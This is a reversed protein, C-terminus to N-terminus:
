QRRVDLDRFIRPGKDARLPAMRGGEGGKRGVLFVGRAAPKEAPSQGAHRIAFALMPLLLQRGEVVAIQAQALALRATGRLAIDSYPEIVPAPPKGKGLDPHGLFAEIAQDQRAGAMILAVDITPARAAGAGRNAIMLDYDILLESETLTARTARAEVHLEPLIRTSILGSTAPQAPAPAPAPAPEPLPAAVREAISPGEFALEERKRRSFWWYGAAGAALLAAIWWWTVFASEPGMTADSETGALGPQGSMPADLLDDDLVPPELPAPAVQSGDSSVPTDPAIVPSPTPASSAPAPAPTPASSAPDPRAPTPAPSPAPAPAPAPAPRPTRAPTGGLSFDRLSDPGVADETQQQTGSGPAPIAVVNGQGAPAAEQAAFAAPVATM